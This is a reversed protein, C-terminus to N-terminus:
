PASLERLLEARGYVKDLAESIAAASLAVARNIAADYAFAGAPSHINGDFVTGIVEGRANILPAGSDGGTIDNTTALNFVTKPNLRERAALWRPALTYPDDARARAYLGEFDTFAPTTQGQYTWGAPAGYSLRLSQNADPYMAEGDLAFRARSIRQESDDVPALVDQEYLGRAARSAADTALVFRIMPDDSAGLAALGGDWLRRRLAPDGLQSTALWRAQAQPSSRGIFIGTEMSDVGLAERLKTLWFELKLRELDADVPDPDLIQKRLSPLRGDAYEPLRQSDPKSQDVAARVLARAYRYLRSDLGARELMVYAPELARHDIQAASLTAWPDGTQVALTPNAAVRARLRADIQRRDEIFAPDSLRQEEGNIFKFNNEVRFLDRSAVRAHDAGEQSFRTLLGREEALRLLTQPLVFDRLSELQDATMLRSTSGPAGAVFVPEGERPPAPNWRLHQATAAPQGDEYLRLFAVDFAYRPFNFNDPDGGFFAAQFEPAFVLRIDDYKRYVRLQYGGTQLSPDVQCRELPTKGACAGAEVAAVEAALAMPLDHPNRGATARSVQDTVDSVSLLIEAQLGPCLREESRSASLFGSQAFDQTRTSFAQICGLVCHHSTLLLGESSVVAASCGDDLRAAGARVHDLWAQDITVGYQAKVAGEPFHDFTWLGEEAAAAQGLSWGMALTALFRLPWHAGM